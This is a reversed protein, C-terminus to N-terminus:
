LFVPDRRSSEHNFLIGSCAFLKDSERYMKVLHTAGAKSIGYYSVPWYPTSENQPSVDPRGFVKSSSAYFFRSHSSHKKIASLFNFASKVGDDLFGFDNTNGFQSEVKSALHYIEDPKSELVAKRVMAENLVDGSMLSIRERLHGIRPSSGATRELGYVQYGKELLFEALYSGDQGGIGSILAKKSM